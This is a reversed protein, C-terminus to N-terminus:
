TKVPRFGMYNNRDSQLYGGRGASRVDRPATLWCGGRQIRHAGKDPGQPDVVATKPYKGWRTICMEYVNGHMDHVGWGNPAFSGVPTTTERNIGRIGRRYPGGNFNAQDTSIMEGTSFPTTTGARCAYEWEAETPLRYVHGDRESLKTLFAQCDAWSVQEVPLDAGQFHSPNNDMIEQWHAQTVQHIALWFGQTLTVEHLAEEPQRLREEKPSGMLFTGAPIWAFKMGISNTWFPGVPM